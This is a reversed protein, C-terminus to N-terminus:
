ACCLSSKLQHHMSLLCQKKLSFFLFLFWYNGLLPQFGESWTGVPMHTETSAENINSLGSIFFTVESNIRIDMTGCGLLLWVFWISYFNNATLLPTVGESCWVQNGKFFFLFILHQYVNKLNRILSLHRAKEPKACWWSLASCSTVQNQLWCSCKKVTWASFAPLPNQAFEQGVVQKQREASQLHKLVPM